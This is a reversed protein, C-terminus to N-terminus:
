SAAMEQVQKLIKEIYADGTGDSFDYALKWYEQPTLPGMRDAAVQRNAAGQRSSIVRLATERPIKPATGRPITFAQVVHSPKVTVENRSFSSLVRLGAADSHLVAGVDVEATNRGESVFAVMEHQQASAQVVQYMRPASGTPAVRATELMATLDVQGSRALYKGGAGSRVSWLSEDEQDIVMNAAVQKYRGSNM